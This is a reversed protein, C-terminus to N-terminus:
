QPLQMGIREIRNHEKVTHLNCQFNIKVNTLHNPSQTVVLKKTEFFKHEHVPNHCQLMRGTTELTILDLYAYKVGKM